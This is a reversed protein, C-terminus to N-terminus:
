KKESFQKLYAIVDHREQENALKFTMRTSGKALDAKGNDTLFKKLFANPDPLYDFIHEPTWVLGAAGASKNLESYRFADAEGAKRGLVGNLVPGVGNKAKDGVKHCAKCKRFVKEGKTADGADQAAVPAAPVALLLAAALLKGSIKM